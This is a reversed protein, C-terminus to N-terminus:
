RRSRQLPRPVGPCGSLVAPQNHALPEQQAFALYDQKARYALHSRFRRQCGTPQSHSANGKLRRVGVAFKSRKAPGPQRSLRTQALNKLAPSSNGDSSPTDPPNHTLSDAHQRM